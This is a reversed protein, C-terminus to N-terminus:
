EQQTKAQREAIAALLERELKHDYGSTSWTVNGQETRGETEQLPTKNPTDDITRQSAYILQTTPESRQVIVGCRVVMGGGLPEIRIEAIKRVQMPSSLPRGLLRVGLEAPVITPVSRIIGTRSDAQDIRFYERMTAHAAAYLTQSDVVEFRRQSLTQIELASQACGALGLVISLGAISTRSKM